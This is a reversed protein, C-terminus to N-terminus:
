FLQKGGDKIKGWGFDHDKRGGDIWGLGMEKLNGAKRRSLGQQTWRSKGWTDRWMGRGEVSRWIDRNEVPKHKGEGDRKDGAGM